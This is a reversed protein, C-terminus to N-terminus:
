RLQALCAPIQRMGCSRDTCKQWHVRLCILAHWNSSLLSILHVQSVAIMVLVLVLLAASTSSPAVISMDFFLAVCLLAQSLRFLSASGSKWSSM